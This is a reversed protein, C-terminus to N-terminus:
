RLSISFSVQTAQFGAFGMVDRVLIGSANATGYAIKFPTNNTTSSTSGAVSYLPGTTNCFGGCVNSLATAM